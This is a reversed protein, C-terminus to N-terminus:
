ATQLGLETVAILPKVHREGEMRMYYKMEQKTIGWVANHGISCIMYAKVCEKNKMDWISLKACSQLIEMALAVSISCDQVLGEIDYFCMGPINM